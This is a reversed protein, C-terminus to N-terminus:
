ALLEYILLAVICQREGIMSVFHGVIKSSTITITQLLLPTFLQGALMAVWKRKNDLLVGLFDM